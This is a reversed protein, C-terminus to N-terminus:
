IYALVPIAVSLARTSRDVWHARQIAFGQRLNNVPDGMGFRSTGAQAAPWAIM